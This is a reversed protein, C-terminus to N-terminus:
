KAKLFKQVTTHMSEEKVKWGNETKTVIFYFPLAKKDGNPTRQASIKYDGNELKEYNRNTYKNKYRSLRALPLGKRLESKYRKMPFNVSKTTGDPKLVVRIIKADPLYFDVVKKSYSNAAEIYNEFFAKVDDTDDAFAPIPILLCLAIIYVYVSKLIKKLM